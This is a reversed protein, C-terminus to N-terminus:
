FLKGQEAAINFSRRHHQTLGHEAIAKRHALTGYGKNDNWRYHPFAEHLKLM